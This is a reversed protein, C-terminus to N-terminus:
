EPFAFTYLERMKQSAVEHQPHATNNYPHAPNDRIEAIQLKAESPTMAASKSTEIAGTEGALKGFEYMLDVMMHDGGQDAVSDFYDMLGPIRDSMMKSANQAISLNQDYAAGWKQKLGDYGAQKEAMIAESSEKLNGTLHNYIKEAQQRTLGAEFAAEAFAHDSEPDTGFEESGEFVYGNADAPRGLTQFFNGWGDADDEAPLRVVGNVKQLKENFENWVDESANESPIRISNGRFSELEKYANALDAPSKFKELGEVGYTEHWNDTPADFDGSAEGSNDSVEPELNEAEM